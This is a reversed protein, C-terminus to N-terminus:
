AQRAPRMASKEGLLRLVTRSSIGLHSALPGANSGDFHTEIYRKVAERNPRVPIDIRMGPFHKLLLRVVDIGAVEAIFKLDGPLDEPQIDELLSPMLLIYGM